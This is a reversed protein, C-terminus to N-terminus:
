ATKRRLANFMPPKQGLLWALAAGTFVAPVAGLASMEALNNITPGIVVMAALWGLLSAVIYWGARHVHHRLFLWQMGGLSLSMVGFILLLAGPGLLLDQFGTNLRVAAFLSVFAVIWGAICAAIWARAPRVYYRLVVYQSLAPLLVVLPAMIFGFVQDENVGVFLHKLLDLIAYALLWSAMFAATNVVIWFGWFLYRPFSNRQEAMLDEQLDFLLL